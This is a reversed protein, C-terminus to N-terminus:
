HHLQKSEMAHDEKPRETEPTKEEIESVNDKVATDESGKEGKEAKVEEQITQKRREKRDEKIKKMKEVVKTQKKKVEEVSAPKIDVGVIEAYVTKEQKLVHVRVKRPPKQIGRAWIAKNISQGLKVEETKTHKQLFERVLRTAIKARKPRNGPSFVDRLPITFIKEETKEAMYRVKGAAILAQM